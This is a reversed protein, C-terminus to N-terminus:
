RVEIFPGAIYFFIRKPCGKPQFLTLSLKKEGQPRKKASFLSPLATKVAFYGYGLSCANNKLTYTCHALKIGIEKIDIKVLDASKM